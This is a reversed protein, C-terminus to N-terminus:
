HEPYKLQLHAILKVGRVDRDWFLLYPSGTGAPLRIFSHPWMGMCSSESDKIQPKQLASCLRGLLLPYISCSCVDKRRLSTSVMLRTGRKLDETPLYINTQLVPSPLASLSRGWHPHLHASSHRGKTWANRKPDILMWILQYRYKNWDTTIGHHFFFFAWSLTTVSQRQLYAM